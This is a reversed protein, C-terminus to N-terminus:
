GQTLISDQYGLKHLFYRSMRLFDFLLISLLGLVKTQDTRTISVSLLLLRQPPSNLLSFMSWAESRENRRNLVWINGRQKKHEIVMVMEEKWFGQYYYIRGKGHWSKEVSECGSMLKFYLM